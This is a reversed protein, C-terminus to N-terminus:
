DVKNLIFDDATGWGKAKCQIHMGITLTGDTVKIASIKPEQWNGYGEATFADSAVDDGVSAYLEMKATSDIDGGQFYAKLEYTGPELDTFKQEISFDMDSESWFHFSYEGTHADAEKQQFDTPNKDGEYSVTWMSTDSDEFSPNAVYNLMEVNVTCCVETPNDSDATADLIRGNIEYTGAKATDINLIQEEYWEVPLSTNLARNNYVVDVTEPLELEAGINCTVVPANVMDIAPEANTGYKLWKYTNLSELPKGEADFLAQNDWSCGGYYKGADNPDYDAAYSSAWGSGFEEWIPSNDANVDGVTIWAGEWYFVGLAGAEDATACVDRLATSQSQVTAGYAEILDGENVSNGSGDTDETTYCYATEAILTEKGYKNQINAMVNQLNEFTGHWYPYYSLALIDYDVQFSALKYLISDLKDYDSADTYHLAVKIEKNYTKAAERVAKSGANMLQAVNPIQTEGAMGNNTENGVQVMGVDVGADLLQTLSDKTFEYLANSKDELSMGEWAKPCIQKKPDAWFDSYHFDICVKMGNTTARKGLEIATALDNNGGGYGNGDADFPDNWVRIRAYNVGAQAMTTFVDQEVGDNSYYKVGSKEEVLISSVDMGRIFNDSIGPIPEVYIGADEAADPLPYMPAQAAQTDSTSESGTDTSTEPVSTEQASTEQAPTGSVAAADTEPTTQTSGSSCGALSSSVLTMVLLLTMLNKRKM